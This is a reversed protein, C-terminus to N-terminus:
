LLVEEAWEFYGPALPDWGYLVIVEYNPPFTLHSGDLHGTRQAAAVKLHLDTIRSDDKQMTCYILYKIADDVSFQRIAVQVPKHNIFTGCRITPAIARVRPMEIKPKSAM